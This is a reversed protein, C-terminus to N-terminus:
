LEYKNTEMNKRHEFIKGDYIANFYGQTEEDAKTTSRMKYQRIPGIILTIIVKYIRVKSNKKSLIM